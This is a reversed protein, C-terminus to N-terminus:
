TASVHDACFIPQSFNQFKQFKKIKSSNLNKKFTGDPFNKDFKIKGTYKISKAILKSLKKITINEGSGINM